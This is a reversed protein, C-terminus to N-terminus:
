YIPLAGAPQKLFFIRLWNYHLFQFGKWLYAFISVDIFIVYAEWSSGPAIIAHMM